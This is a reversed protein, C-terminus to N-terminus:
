DNATETGGLAEEEARVVTLGVDLKRRIRAADKDEPEFSLARKWQFEAERERGVMWYVDGLHDNVIPDVPLLAAAREMPEVAEEFRGLKYFAWALSDIIYGSEPREKVATEIMGLAEKLKMNQDILSYGLYNLVEPQDPYLELARRFDTEMDTFNDLNEHVIGRAYYVRWAARDGPERLALSASYADLSEERRDVRTLMDGLAAHVLPAQPFTQSLAELVEIAADKRDDSFLADARGMEAIFYTPDDRDVKAYAKTALRHQDLDDLVEAVVLIAPAHDPRIHQALRAYTLVVEPAARGSLVAAINFLVEASGEQADNVFDYAVPAGAQINTRLADLDANFRTDLVQNILALADDNRELQVLIQAHALIGRTSLQLTGYKEGSLIANASQFDGVTALALAEHYYAFSAFDENEAVDAFAATADSMNGQGLIAWGRLLGDLLPALGTTETVLATTKSFDGQALAASKVTIDAIPNAGPQKLRNAAIEAAKPVDGTGLFSMMANDLLSLNTRDENLARDYYTAANAYDSLFSAQRAALYSGALGRDQAGATTSLLCLTAAIFKIRPM